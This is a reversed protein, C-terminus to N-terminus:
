RRPMLCTIGINKCYDPRYWLKLFGRRDDLIDEVNDFIQVTLERRHPNILNLCM